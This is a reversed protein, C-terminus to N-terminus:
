CENINFTLSNSFFILIFTSSRWTACTHHWVNDDLRLGPMTNYIQQFGVRFDENGGWLLMANGYAGKPTKSSSLTGASVSRSMDSPFRLWECFSMQKIIENEALYDTLPLCVGSTVSGESHYFVDDLVFVYYIIM